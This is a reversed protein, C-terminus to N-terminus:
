DDMVSQINKAIHDAVVISCSTKRLLGRVNNLIQFVWEFKADQPVAYLLEADNRDLNTLSSSQSLEWCMRALRHINIYSTPDIAEVRVYQKILGKFFAEVDSAQNTSLHLDLLGNRVSYRVEAFSGDLPFQGMSPGDYTDFNV